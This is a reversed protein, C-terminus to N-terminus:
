FRNPLWEWFRIEQLAPRTLKVPRSWNLKTALVAHLNRQFFRAPQVALALSQVQGLFRALLKPRIWRAQHAALARLHHAYQQIASVKAGPVHFRGKSSDVWLGLHHIGQTPTLISKHVKLALGLDKLVSIM